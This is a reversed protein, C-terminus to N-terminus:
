AADSEFAQGVTGPAASLLSFSRLPASSSSSFASRQFSPSDPVRADGGAVAASSSASFVRPKTDSQDAARLSLVFFITPM